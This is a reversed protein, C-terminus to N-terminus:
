AGDKGRWVARATDPEGAEAFTVAVMLDQLRALPRAARRQRAACAARIRAVLHGFDFPTLIEDFAGLKMGAMSLSVDAGDGILIVQSSPRVAKAEKLLALGREGWGKLALLVVDIRRHRLSRRMQEADATDDVLFQEGRLRDSLNMRFLEDPDVILVSANPHSDSM